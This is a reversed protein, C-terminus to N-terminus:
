TEIDIECQKYLFDDEIFNIVLKIIRKLDQLDKNEHKRLYHVEDNGIWSALKSATQIKPENINDNICQSLTKRKIAEIKEPKDEISICYDKILFELAKRYGPGSVHNLGISEAKEAQHFIRTFEVSIENVCDPFIKKVYSQAEFKIFLAESAPRITKHIALFSKECDLSKCQFHCSIHYWDDKSKYFTADIPRTTQKSNCHPCTDIRSLKFTVQSGTNKNSCKFEFTNM